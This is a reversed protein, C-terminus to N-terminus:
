SIKHGLFIRTLWLYASPNMSEAQKWETVNALISKAIALFTADNKLKESTALVILDQIIQASYEKSIKECLDLTNKIELISISKTLKEQLSNPLNPYFNQFHNIQKKILNFDEIAVTSLINNKPTNNFSIFIKQCRSAITPIVLNINKTTLIFVTKAQPEELSKLLANASNLNMRECNEIFIVRRNGESPQYLILEKIKSLDEIRLIKRTREAIFIDTHMAAQEFVSIAQQEILNIGSLHRILLKFEQEPFSNEEFHKAVFLFAHHKYHDINAMFEQFATM